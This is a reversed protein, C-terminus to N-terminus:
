AERILSAIRESRAGVQKAWRSDLAETAAQQWDGAELAALMNKFGSLRPWGMNFCMNVLGRAPREPLNRWWPANRDLDAMSRGIDNELLYDSEEVTIGVDDLNRGVGITTKGVTDTYPKLRQDEDRVLDAKLREIIM